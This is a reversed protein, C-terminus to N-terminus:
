RGSEQDLRRAALAERIGGVKANRAKQSDEVLQLYAGFVSSAILLDARTPKGYLIRHRVDALADPNPWAMGDFHLYHDSM